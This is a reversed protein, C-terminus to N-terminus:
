DKGVAEETHERILTNAMEQIIVSRPASGRMDM